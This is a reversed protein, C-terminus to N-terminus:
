LEVGHVRMWAVVPSLHTNYRPDIRLAYIYAADDPVVPWLRPGAIFTPRTM